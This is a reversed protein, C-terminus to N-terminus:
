KKSGRQLFAVAVLIVGQVAGNLYNSIINTLNLINGITEFLIAGVVTGFIRGSGGKLATGGIIVAAIASLEWGLGTTSNSSGLQPVYVITAIAVCIGQLMYTLIKIRDVPIASYRAVQESSGIAQVYRGFVTRNLLLGGVLAVGLFVWIPNPIGLLTGYFVPGYLDGLELNLSITGGDALFTLASRYIGLTGLTVIFPEVRGKTILMGHLFGFLAGMLLAALIGVLISVGSVGLSSVVANLTLIVVGAVLAAMAGVSLDIGGSIIVFTAGIAIIGIFSTRSVINSLNTSSLFDPNLLTGLVMLIFLGILPGFSALNFKRLTKVPTSVTM